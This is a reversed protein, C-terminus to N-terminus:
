NLGADKDADDAKDDVSGEAGMNGDGGVAMDRGAGVSIIDETSDILIDVLTGYRSDSPAFQAVNAKQKWLTIISVLQQSKKSPGSVCGM